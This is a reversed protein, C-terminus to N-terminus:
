ETAGVKVYTVFFGRFDENKIYTNVSFVRWGMKAQSDHMATLLEIAVEPEDEEVFMTKAPTIDYLTNHKTFDEPQARGPKQALVSGSVLMAIILLVGRFFHLSISDAM